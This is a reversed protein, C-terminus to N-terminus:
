TVTEGIHAMMTKLRARDSKLDELPLALSRPHVKGTPKSGASM